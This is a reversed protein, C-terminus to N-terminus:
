SLPYQLQPGPLFRTVTTPTYVGMYRGDTYLLTKAPQFTAYVSGTSVWTVVLNLTIETTQGGTVSITRSADTYGALSCRVTHTGATVGSITRPTTYGTDTGDLYIRAGPPSSSVSLSGTVPGQRALTLKVTSTKGASVTVSQSQDTYGSMSCRVTHTGTTVGSITRPTTYGTDTGDLYIRAGTPSSSVSVSGTVLGQRALTLKVTSTKGASVTVSQSQDTYGSMSCRVMHTGATVGSITRPTTYGTDTGDLYIRAGPPSSSVSLSGTVPGQSQLTLTVSTTQGGTVSITQSADTYGTLSCRVTHSGATVGSITRPTTYGTDTGDLYIRAGTPSSSVSLSGTVPGQRTLTLKVTSTKGASVTVSQSQDTYGTMICRVTHTGATVSSFTRPTNFGTDTGDLYIRAGTPSSSVSLSGTVPGQSQLTLTVSTTQGGTVSITQSADTYGTLSCRVTHSGAPIASLVAPTRYGTNVGDLYVIAGSPGSKVDIAGLNSSGRNSMLLDHSPDGDYMVPHQDYHKWTTLPSAYNFAEEASVWNDSNTDASPTNVGEVIYTTFWSGSAANTWSGEGTRCSVLCVYKDGTLAKQQEGSNVGSSVAVTKRSEFSGAFNQCFRDAETPEGSGGASSAASVFTKTDGKIMGEAECADIVVLVNRCKIGDLWQKLESSSIDYNVSNSETDYPELYSAGTYSPYVYGHGSFYFVFTDDKGARSSMQLLATRIANKTAGSNDLTTIRSSSYGCDNILMDRMNPTDYQVGDLNNSADRYTSVGVLLAYSVPSSKLTDNNVAQASGYYSGSASVIGVLFINLIFITFILIKKNDM